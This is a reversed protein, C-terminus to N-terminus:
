KKIRRNVDNIADRTFSGDSLQQMIAIFWDEQASIHPFAGEAVYEAYETRNFFYQPVSPDESEYYIPEILDLMPPDLDGDPSQRWRAIALPTDIASLDPRQGEAHEWNYRMWGTYFPHKDDIEYALNSLTGEVIADFKPRITKKLKEAIGSNKSGFIRRVSSDLSNLGKYAQSADVGILIGEAM